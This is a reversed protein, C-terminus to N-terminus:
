WVGECQGEEYLCSWICWNLAALAAVPTAKTAVSALGRFISSKLPYVLNRAAAHLFAKTAFYDATVEGGTTIWTTFGPLVACDPLCKMFYNAMCNKKNLGFPDIFGTPNNEVYSYFNLAQSGKSLPSCQAGTLRYLPDESIFRQLAPHYYRARYYYLGASGDNERGTFQFRTVLEDGNVSTSGFPEYTYTTVPAGAQDLVAITSGLADHLAFLTRDASAASLPEDIALSRLYTTLTGSELQGYADVDDYLFQTSRANITKTTRRGFAYDFSAAIGPGEIRALRDRADWSFQTTGGEDVITTLNGNADFTMQKNGFVRQRNAVDHIATAVPDPLLSRAYSGTVRTRNGAGDYTYALNGLVTAGNRYIAGTLRSALDYEYETSVGNPLTVLTRRGADDYDLLAVRPGQVVRRLRSGSDYEYTTSSLGPMAVTKRRGIADYEYSITGSTTSEAIIVRDLADYASTLTGGSSDDARTLRGGGDYTFTTGSGDAYHATSLRNLVDYVFTSVQNQRDTRQTLNGLPNYVFREIAGLPDTRTQVRDMDDYTHGVTHNRADTATLLNGNPDFAFRTLSGLPDTILTVRDLADHSFQTAKGRPDIRRLRRGAADYEFRTTNGLPDAIGTVNGASDYAFTVTHGLPDTITLAQGFANYTLTTTKGRPDTITTMNGLTDYGFLTPPTVPNSASIIKNFTSEYTMRRVTGAPDTISTVNGLGDYGYRTVRGLPDTTAALLNSNTAYTYTTAQGLADTVSEPFGQSNFRHITTSGRPDTVLTQMATGYDFRWAGGDAQTQRSVRGAGDYINM